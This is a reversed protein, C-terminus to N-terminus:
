GVRRTAWEHWPRTAARHVTSPQGSGRRVNAVFPALSQISTANVTFSRVIIM